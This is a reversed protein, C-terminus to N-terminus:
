SNRGCSTCVGALTDRLVKMDYKAALRLPGAIAAGNRVMEDATSNKSLMAM